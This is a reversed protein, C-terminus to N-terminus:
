RCNLLKIESLKRLFLIIVSCGWRNHHFRLLERTYAADVVCRLEVFCRNVGASTVTVVGDVHKLKVVVAMYSVGEALLYRSSKATVIFGPLVCAPPPAIRLSLSKGFMLYGDLKMMAEQVHLPDAFSLIARGRRQDLLIDEVNGVQEFLRILITRTYELGVPFSVNTM